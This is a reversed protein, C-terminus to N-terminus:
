IGQSIAKFGSVPKAFDFVSGITFSTAVYEEIVKRTKKGAGSFLV